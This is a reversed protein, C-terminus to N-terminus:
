SQSSKAGHELVLLASGCLILTIDRSFTVTGLLACAFLAVYQLVFHARAPSKGLGKLSGRGMAWVMAGVVAGGLLGVASLLDLLDSHQSLLAGGSFLGGVLPSQRIGELPLSYYALRSASSAGQGVLVNLLQTLSYAFNSLGLQECLAAAWTVLPVRALFLAGFIPLTWLLSAGTSLPRKFVWRALLRLLAALAEMALIAAAFIAAYTYQSLAIMVAQLALLGALGARKWRSSAVVGYCTIPLALVSAYIFDYGGINRLMLEKLYPGRDPEGSGLSRAYAYVKGEQLGRLIGEILWHITTLTTVVVAALLVVKFHRWLRADGRDRAYGCFLLPFWFMGQQVYYGWLSEGGRRMLFRLILPLLAMCAVRLLLDVWHKRLYPTDLVLGLGFLGVAIIGMMARGTTQLAPLLLWLTYMLLSANCLGASLSSPKTPIEMSRPM